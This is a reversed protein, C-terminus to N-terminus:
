RGRWFELLNALTSSLDIGEEKKVRDIEFKNSEEVGRKDLIGNKYINNKSGSIKWELSVVAYLQKNILNSSQNSIEIIKNENVKKAFFRTLYGSKYDENSPTPKYAVASIGTSIDAFTGYLSPLKENYRM